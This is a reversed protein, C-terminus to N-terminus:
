VMPRFKGVVNSLCATIQGGESAAEARRPKSQHPTHRNVLEGFVNGGNRTPSTFNM